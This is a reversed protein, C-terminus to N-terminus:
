RNTANFNFVVEEVTQAPGAAYKWRTVAQSAYQALIPNGGKVEVKSVTGNPAVTAELRVQGEFRGNKLIAPYEPDFMVVVKRHLKPANQALLQPALNAMSGFLLAFAVLSFSAQFGSL